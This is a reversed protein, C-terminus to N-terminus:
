GRRECGQITDSRDAFVRDVGGGCRIADPEGDAARIVDRGRGGTIRDPGPGGVIRDRGRGGHVQDAGPGGDVADRGAQGFLCDDGQLGSIVDPGGLGAIRDAASTGALTDRGATGRKTNQASCGIQPSPGALSPCGNGGTGAQTPCADTRSPVGDRDPDDDTPDCADGIGDGDGDSQSTNGSTACNDGSNAVGDDDFDGNNLSDCANGVGDGDSDQQDPNSVEPCNDTANADGDGDRDNNDVTDCANGVGDSDNDQQGANPVGACNDIVDAVGDGDTDDNSVQDCADGIDDDDTDQQGPNSTNPCNDGANAVGDGDFDNDDTPDCANGVGDNDTDQQGANSQDPCNDVDDVIGDDDLDTNDTPDCANGIGDGDIDQQGPNADTPCNDADNVVGDEDVDDDNTQDCADGVGDGDSDLQSSNSISPCNDDGNEVGDNDTDDDVPDCADGIGDGDSDLQTGNANNPCNDSDNPWGDNDSDNSVTFDAALDYGPPLVKGRPAEVLGGAAGPQDLTPLRLELNQVTVPAQGNSNRGYPQDNPLLELKAIHGAAFQWRNPHLQFVQRSGTAGLNIKPRWLGRAVLTENGDPGVDVLRAAIQSTPGPSYIDAVITPSGLLTFGGAPAAPLRYNAAGPADVGNASACAGGGAIPDFAQNTQPNGGQPTIVQVAEGALHVEGPSAAAWSPAQEVTGSPNAGTCTQPLTTVGDFAGPGTGKLYHDFWAEQQARLVATDNSAGRGRQHGYDLFFLSIDASPHETRTRNYFRIAEDPPFLDDTWGNSILLPAPPTSDDIYYSSHHTTIEDVIENSLPNSDYPEGANISSYWTTLDADPDQGPPAYNSGAAGLGYLGATFSQKLVGIRKDGNPGKYPANAVYDLTAGNPQLSYALDTWPIDPAAAAIRMPAGDPSTWPVLTDDPLMVRDKLAALAMSMGGGYSPGTAGIRQGDAIGDDALLSVLYQADRVEYRTDMLHNYGKECPGGPVAGTLRKPDTGGCSNGWGRDSMSFVAYGNDLYRQTQSTLGVKSGGWGHYFGILPYGGPPPTASPVFLNVDIATQNDWTKVGTAPSSCNLKGVNAGTMPVCTTQGDFATTVVAGASPAFALAGFAVAGTAIARRARSYGM